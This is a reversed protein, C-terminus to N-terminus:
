DDRVNHHIALLISYCLSCLIMKGLRFIEHPYLTHGCKECRSIM